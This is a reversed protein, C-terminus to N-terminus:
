AFQATWAGCPLHLGTGIAGTCRQYICLYEYRYLMNNCRPQWPTPKRWLHTAWGRSVAVSQWWARQKDCIPPKYRTGVIVPCLM